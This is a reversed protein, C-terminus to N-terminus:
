GLQPYRQLYRLVDNPDPQIVLGSEPIAIVRSWEFQEAYGLVQLSDIARQTDAKSGVLFLRLRRRRPRVSPNEPLPSQATEVLPSPLVYQIKLM